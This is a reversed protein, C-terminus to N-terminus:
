FMVYPRVFREDKASIEYIALLIGENNKIVCRPTSFFKPLVMGNRIKKEVIVDVSISPLDQIIEEISIIQFGNIEIDEIKQCDAIDYNGQKIRRLSGMTSAVNLHEGIDRVLSRIYTGKSVQCRIKFTKTNEINTIDSILDISSITVCKKPLKVEINERAYEYLKKGNVKVSSYVPVEQNYTKCFHKLTKRIKEESIHETSEKKTVNGIVDLTDTSYGLIVEAEYEKELSTVLDVLKLAKGLCLVLVGTANPDLTGNHGIKKTQLIKGVKNVVDRSTWNIPKDILIIGDM